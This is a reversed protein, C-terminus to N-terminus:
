TSRTNWIKKFEFTKHLYWQVTYPTGWTGPSNSASQSNSLINSCAWIHFSLSFEWSAHVRQLKVQRARLLHFLVRIQGLSALLSDQTWWLRYPFRKWDSVNVWTKIKKNVRNWKELAASDCMHFDQTSVLLFWEHSSTCYRPCFGNCRHSPIRGPLVHQAWMYRSDQCHHMTPSGLM